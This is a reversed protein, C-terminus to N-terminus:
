DLDIEDEDALITDLPIDANIDNIITVDVSLLGEDVLYKKLSESEMHSEFDCINFDGSSSYWAEAGEVTSKIWSTIADKLNTMLVKPDQSRESTVSVIACDTMMARENRKFLLTTKM